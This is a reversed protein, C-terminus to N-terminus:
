DEEEDDFEDDFDDYDDFDEVDDPHLYSQIKPVIWIFLLALLTRVIWKESYFVLRQKITSPKAGEKIEGTVQDYIQNKVASYDKNADGRLDSRDTESMPSFKDIINFLFEIPRM